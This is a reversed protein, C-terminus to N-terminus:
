CYKEVAPRLNLLIILMNHWSNWRMHNDLPIIRGTLKRFENTRGASGRIHVVINHGQGLPGLLRFKARKAEKDILEGSQDQEDYAELEEMKVVSIFLFAQVM